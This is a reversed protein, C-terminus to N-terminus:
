VSSLEPSGKDEHVKHIYSPGCLRWSRLEGMLYFIVLSFHSPTHDYGEPTGQERLRFKITHSM